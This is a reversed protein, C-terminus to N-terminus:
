ILLRAPRSVQLINRYIMNTQELDRDNHRGVVHSRSVNLVRLSGYLYSSPYNNEAERKRPFLRLIAQRKKAKTADISDIRERKHWEDM